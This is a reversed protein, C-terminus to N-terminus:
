GLDRGKEDDGVPVVDGADVEVAISRQILGLSVVVRLNSKKRKLVGDLGALPGSNIRVRRGVTLFPHPQARLSESLGSRIIEVERDRLPTPVSNFGVLRVVGPVQIVRMRDHLALHVFLYGPFLPLKLTVRRDKWRRVSDYLPLFHEVNRGELQDAVRREHNSYTYVAYWCPQPYPAPETSCRIVPTGIRAERRETNPVTPIANV